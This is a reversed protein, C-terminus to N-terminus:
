EAQEDEKDKLERKESERNYVFLGIIAALSGLSTILGVADKGMIMLAIGAILAIVFVAFGFIQGTKEAKINAELMKSEMKRRHISQEEAMKLIRDAAGTLVDEYKELERASPIPGSYVQVASRHVMPKDRGADGVVLEKNDAM